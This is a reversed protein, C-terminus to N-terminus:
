SSSVKAPHWQPLREATRPYAENDDMLIDDPLDDGPFPRTEYDFESEIQGDDTVTITANYWTGEGETYMSDRLDDCWLLADDGLDTSREVSGDQREIMLRVSTAASLATISLTVSEWSEGAAAVMAGGIRQLFDGDPDAM